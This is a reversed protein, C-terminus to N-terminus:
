ILYSKILLNSSHIIESQTMSSGKSPLQQRDNALFPLLDWANPSRVFAPKRLYATQLTHTMM